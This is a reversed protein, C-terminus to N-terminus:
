STSNMLSNRHVNYKVFLHKDKLLGVWGLFFRNSWIQESKNDLNLWKNNNNRWSIFVDVM